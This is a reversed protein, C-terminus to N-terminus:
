RWEVGADCEWRRWLRGLGEEGMKEVCCRKAGMREWYRGGKGQRVVEADETGALWLGTAGGQEVETALVGETVKLFMFGPDEKWTSTTTRAFIPTRTFGPTFAHAVRRKHVPGGPTDHILAQTDFRRQLLAAFACQMAKSNAYAGEASSARTGNASPPCHFGAECRGTVTETSFDNSFRGAYQGHSTTLIVRATTTLHDELLYTLLFSGLFNTAYVIELNQPSFPTSSPATSIGANHVLIDLTVNQAILLHACAHVSTLDSTDLSIIHTRSSADPVQQLIQDRATSARPESRCGLYVTAGRSVLGTAISLGIGSNAGTVLAVKGQLDVHPPHLEPLLRGFVLNALAAQLDLFYIASKHRRAPLIQLATAITTYLLAGAAATVTRILDM